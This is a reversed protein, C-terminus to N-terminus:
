GRRAGRPRRKEDDASAASSRAQRHPRHRAHRPGAHRGRRRAAARGVAPDAAGAPRCRRCASCRWWCWRCPRPSAGPSSRARGRRETAGTRDLSDAREDIEAVLAPDRVELRASSRGAPAASGCCTTPRPSIGAARRLALRALMDRRRRRSHAVGAARPKSRSPTARAPRATSSLPGTGDHTM